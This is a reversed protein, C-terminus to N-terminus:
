APTGQRRSLDPLVLGSERLELDALRGVVEADRRRWAGAPDDSVAALRHLPQRALARMAFLDLDESSDVFRRGATARRVFRWRLPLYVAVVILVPIAAV